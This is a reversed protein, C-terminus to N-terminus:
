GGTVTFEFTLVEQPIVNPNMVYREEEKALIGKKTLTNFTNNLHAASIKLEKVIEKRTETSFLLSSAYPEVVGDSTYVAYKNALAVAVDLQKETLKQNALFVKLFTRTVHDLSGAIRIVVQDKLLATM